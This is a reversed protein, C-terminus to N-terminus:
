AARRRLRRAHHQRHRRPVQAVSAHGRLARARGALREATQHMAPAALVAYPAAGADDPLPAMAAAGRRRRRRRGPAARVAQLRRPRVPDRAEELVRALEGPGQPLRHRRPDEVRARRTSRAPSAPRLVRGRARRAGGGHLAPRRRRGDAARRRLAGVRRGDRVRAAVRRARRGRCRREGHARPRGGSSATSSRRRAARPAGPRDRGHPARGRARSSPPTCRCGSARSGSRRARVEPRLVGRGSDPGRRPRACRRAARTTTSCSGCSSGRATPPPCRRTAGSACSGLRTPRSRGTRAGACCSSSSRTRAEDLLPVLRTHTAHVPASAGLYVLM